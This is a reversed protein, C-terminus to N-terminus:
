ILTILLRGELNGCCFSWGFRSRCYRQKWFSKGVREGRVGVRRLVSPEMQSNGDKDGSGKEQGESQIKRVVFLAVDPRGDVGEMEM